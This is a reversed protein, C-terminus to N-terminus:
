LSPAPALDSKDVTGSSSPGDSTGDRSRRPNYGIGSNDLYERMLLSGRGDARIEALDALVVLSVAASDRGNPGDGLDLRSGLRQNALALNDTRRQGEIMQLTSKSRVSGEPMRDSIMSEIRTRANTLDSSIRLTIVRSQESGSKSPLRSSYLRSDQSHLASKSQGESLDTPM